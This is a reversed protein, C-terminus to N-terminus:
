HRGGFGGGPRGGPGGFGGVSGMTGQTQTWSLLATGDKEISYTGGTALAESSVWVSSYQAELKFSFIEKGNNDKITYSGASFLTGASSYTNQSNEPLECIGGLAVITGGTITIKGDTDVSGAMNGQSNGGKVLVTGGTMNINGNSDIADTDGTGTTVDLYGGSISILPTSSGNCANLGDDTAYVYVSGGKIEIVNAEIGEYSTVVNVVGNNITVKEDGHVGDDGSTITISGGNVVVEGVSKAGSEFTEDSGANMGDDETNLVILGNNVIISNGAKLAKASPQNKNNGNQNGGWGGPFGGFWGVNEVDGEVSANEQKYTNYKGTYVSINGETDIQLDFAADIGDYQAYITVNGAEIIVNGKQNGKKTLGTDSTKIGDGKYSVLFLDGSEVKVGENGKIANNVAEVKLIVNKVTLSDKSQVGNNCTSKVILTGKGTLSLDCKAYIAANGTQDSNEETLEARTDNIINVTDNQSKIKVEKASEVYIPAASASSIKCGSLEINVEDDEGAAVIINGNELSGSFVYTGGTKITYVGNEVSYDGGKEADVTISFDGTPEVANKEPDEVNVGAQATPVPEINSNGNTPTSTPKGGQGCGALLTTILLGALIAKKRM